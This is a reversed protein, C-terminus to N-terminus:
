AQGFGGYAVELPGAPVPGPKQTGPAQPPTLPATQAQCRGQPSRGWVRMPGSPAEDEFEGSPSGLPGPPAPWHRCPAARV